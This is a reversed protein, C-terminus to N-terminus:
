EHPRESKWRKWAWIKWKPPEQALWKEFAAIYELKENHRMKKAQKANMTYDGMENVRQNWRQVEFEAIYGGDTRLGCDVCEVWYGAKQDSELQFQLEAKAGCCPCCKLNTLYPKDSNLMADHWVDFSGAEDRGCEACELRYKISEGEKDIYKIRQHSGCYPCPTMWTIYEDTISRMELAYETCKRVIEVVEEVPMSDIKAITEKANDSLLM